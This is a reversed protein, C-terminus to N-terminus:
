VGSPTTPQIPKNPPTQLEYFGAIQLMRDSQHRAQLALLERAADLPWLSQWALLERQLAAFELLLEAPATPSLWEVFCAAERLCLKVTM